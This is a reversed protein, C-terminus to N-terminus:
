SQRPRTPDQIWESWSGAYLAPEDFGAIRLALINHAATIGSGCYCVVQAADGVAPTFRQRLRQPTLFRLDSDLNGQFPLCQAGPIHGGVPDITENRGAFRETTRADLLARGARDELLERAEVLATLPAQEPYSTNPPARAPPADTSTAFGAGRWASWGGDLVAVRSHGLWRALWWMRAAFMGNDADYVILQSGAEIGWSAFTARLRARDPLPHRGSIGPRPPDALDTELHAHYATPIHGSAYDRPGVGHDALNARCDVICWGPANLRDSLSAADILTSYV